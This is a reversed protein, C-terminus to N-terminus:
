HTGYGLSIYICSHFKLLVEKMFLALTPNYIVDEKAYFAQLESYYKTMDNRAQVFIKISEDQYKTVNISDIERKTRQLNNYM